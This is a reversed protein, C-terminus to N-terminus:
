GNLWEEKKILRGEESSKLALEILKTVRLAEELSVVPERRALSDALLSFFHDYGGSEIMVEATDECYITGVEKEKGQYFTGDALQPEQKDLGYKVFSGKSGHLEFRPYASNVFSSARLYVRKKGYHLVVLFGDDTRGNERQAMIEAYLADPQGFLVLAQDLLHSGLDYLVGSGAGPQERWRNQVHPRFRDFRSELVQWDGLMEEKLLKQITLFDGDWRRNQHVTVVSESAQKLQILERGEEVTLFAPKEVLVDKGALICQKLMDYHMDSPTTIIYLTAESKSLAEEVTEYVPVNCVDSHDKSTGSRSIIGVVEYKDSHVLHPLHFVKAAFGFGVIITKIM